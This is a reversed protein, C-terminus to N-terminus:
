RPAVRELALGAPKLAARLRAELEACPEKTVVLWAGDPREIAALVSEIAEIADRVTGRAAAAPPARLTAVYTTASRPWALTEGEEVVLGRRAAAATLSAVDLKAATGDKEREEGKEQTEDKGDPRGRATLRGDPELLLEAAAPLERALDALADPTPAAGDRTRIRARIVVVTPPPGGRFSKMGFGAGVLAKEVQESSLTGDPKMTVTATKCDFAVDAVGALAGM